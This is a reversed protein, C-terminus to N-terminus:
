DCQSGRLRRREGSSARDSPVRLSRGQSIRHSHGLSRLPPGAVAQGRAISRTGVAATASSSASAGVGVSSVISYNMDRGAPTFTPPWRTDGDHTIGDLITTTDLLAGSLDTARLNARSLDFGILSGRLPVGSLDPALAPNEVRWRNWADAGATIRDVDEPLAMHRGYRGVHSGVRRPM